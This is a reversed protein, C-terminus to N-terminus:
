KMNINEKCWEAVIAGIIWMIHQPVESIGFHSALKHNVLEILILIERLLWLNIFWLKMLMGILISATM